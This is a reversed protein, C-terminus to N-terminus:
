WVVARFAQIPDIWAPGEDSSSPTELPLASGSASDPRSRLWEYRDTASGATEVGELVGEEQPLRGWGTQFRNAQRGVAGAM